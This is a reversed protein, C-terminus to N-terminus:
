EDRRLEHGLFFRKVFPPRSKPKDIVLQKDYDARNREKMKQIIELEKTSNSHTSLEEETGEWDCNDFNMCYYTYQIEGDDDLKCDFM